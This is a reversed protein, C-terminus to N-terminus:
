VCTKSTISLIVMKWGIRFILCSQSKNLGRLSMLSANPFLCSCPIVGTCNPNSPKKKEVTLQNM